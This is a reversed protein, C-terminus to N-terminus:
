TATYLLNVLGVSASLHGQMSFSIEACPPWGRGSHPACVGDVRSGPAPPRSYSSFHAVKPDFRSFHHRPALDAGFRSFDAM